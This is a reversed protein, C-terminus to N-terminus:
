KVHITASSAMTVIGKARKRKRLLGMTKAPTFKALMATLIASLKNRINYQGTAKVSGSANKCSEITEQYLGANPIPYIKAALRALLATFNRNSVGQILPICCPNLIAM